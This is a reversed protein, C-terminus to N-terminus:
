STERSRGGSRGAPGARGRIEAHLGPGDPITFGNFFTPRADAPLVIPAENTSLVFTADADLQSGYPNLSLRKDAAFATSSM